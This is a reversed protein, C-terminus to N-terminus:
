WAAPRESGPRGCSRVLSTTMWPFALLCPALLVTSGGLLKPLFWRTGLFGGVFNTAIGVLATTALAARFVGAGLGRERLMLETFLGTGSAIIL